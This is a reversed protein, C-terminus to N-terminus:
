IHFSELDFKCAVDTFEDKVHFVIRWKAFNICGTIWVARKDVNDFRSNRVCIIANLNNHNNSLFFRM